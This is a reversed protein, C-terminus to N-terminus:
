NDKNLLLSCFKHLICIFYFSQKGKVAKIEENIEQTIFQEKTILFGCERASAGSSGARWLASPTAKDKDRHARGRGSIVSDEDSSLSPWCTPITIFKVHEQKTVVQGGKRGTAPCSASISITVTDSGETSTGESTDAMARSKLTRWGTTIVLNPTNGLPLWGSSCLLTVTFSRCSSWSTVFSQGILVIYRM